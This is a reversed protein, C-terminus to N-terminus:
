RVSDRLAAVRLTLRDAEEFRGTQQAAAADHVRGIILTDLERCTLAVTVMPRPPLQRRGFSTPITPTVLM